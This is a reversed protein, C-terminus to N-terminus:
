GMVPPYKRLWQNAQSVRNIKDEVEKQMARRNEGPLYYFTFDITCKDPIFFVNKGGTFNFVNSMAQGAPMLPHKKFVGWHKELDNLAPIIVTAM